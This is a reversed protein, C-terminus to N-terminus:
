ETAEPKAEMPLGENLFRGIPKILLEIISLLPIEREQHEERDDRNLYFWISAQVLADISSALTGLEVVDRETYKYIGDIITEEQEETLFHLGM